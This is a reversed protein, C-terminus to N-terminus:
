HHLLSMMVNNYGESSTTMYDEFKYGWYAMLKDRATENLCRQQEQETEVQRLYITGNCKTALFGWSENRNFPTIMIKTLLGRWTVFDTLINDPRYYYIVSITHTSYKLMHYLCPTRGWICINAWVCIHCGM